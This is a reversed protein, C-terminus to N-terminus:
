DTSVILSTTLVDNPFQFTGLERNATYEVKAIIRSAIAVNLGVTTRLQKTVYLFEIGEQHRASRWDVRAYPTVWKNIRYGALVYAAKYALCQAVGCPLMPDGTRGPQKGHVLEATAELGHLDRLRLDLGYHWQVVAHSTQDDQPGVAASVGVELGQGVPVMWQLHAAATPATNFAAQTDPEFREDFNDGNTISLSANLEGTVLRGQVGYPRGCTYRCALSPTITLRRPADQSRYEVGLVSDIKGISFLLDYRNTPRYDIHALEVDLIDPGPRPLLEALAAISFGDSINRGIALALSNVVFSPHGESNITDTDIARTAGLDAPEGLSNVATSLPDGVLVWQAPVLGYNGIERHGVDPRVGAGNGGVVFWGVDIYATIYRRLPILHKLKEGLSEVRQELDDVKDGRAELEEIRAALEAPTPADAHAVSTAALWAIAV